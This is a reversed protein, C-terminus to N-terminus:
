QLRVPFAQAQYGQWGKGLLRECVKDGMWVSASGFSEAGGKEMVTAMGYSQAAKGGVGEVWNVERKM